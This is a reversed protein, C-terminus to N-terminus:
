MIAKDTSFDLMTETHNGWMHKTCYDRSATLKSRYVQVMKEEERNCRWGRVFHLMEMCCLLGGVTYVLLVHLVPHM